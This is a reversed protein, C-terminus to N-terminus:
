LMQTWTNKSTPWTRPLPLRRRMLPKYNGCHLTEAANEVSEALRLSIRFAGFLPQQMCLMGPKGSYM